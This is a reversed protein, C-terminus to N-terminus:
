ERGYLLWGVPVLWSMALVLGVVRASIGARGPGGLFHGLASGQHHVFAALGLLLLLFGLPPWLSLPWLPVTVAIISVQAYAAARICASFTRPAWLFSLAWLAMAQVLAVVVGFLAGLLAPVAIVLVTIPSVSDPIRSAGMAMVSAFGISWGLASLVLARSPRGGAPLRSFVREPRRLVDRVTAAIGLWREEFPSRYSGYQPACRVCLADEGHWCTTCV